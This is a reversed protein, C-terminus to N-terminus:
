NAPNNKIYEQPPSNGSVVVCYGLARIEKVCSLYDPPMHDQKANSELFDKNFNQMLKACRAVREEEDKLKVVDINERKTKEVYPRMQEATLPMTPINSTTGGM